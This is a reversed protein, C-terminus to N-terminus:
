IEDVQKLVMLNTNFVDQITAIEKESLKESGERLIAWLSEINKRAAEMRAVVLAEKGSRSFPFISLIASKSAEEKASFGAAELLTDGSM